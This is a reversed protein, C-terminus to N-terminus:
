NIFFDSFKNQVDSNSGRSVWNAINFNPNLITKQNKPVHRVGRFLKYGTKLFCDFIKLLNKPTGPRYWQIWMPPIGLSDPSPSRAQPAPNGKRDRLPEWPTGPPRKPGRPEGRLMQAEKSGWLIGWLRSAYGESRVSPSFYSRRIYLCCFM